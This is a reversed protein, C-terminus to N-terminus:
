DEEYSPQHMTAFFADSAEQASMGPHIKTYEIIKRRQKSMYPEAMAFLERTSALKGSSGEATLRRILLEATRMTVYEGEIKVRRLRNLEKAAMESIDPVSKPRGKKNGSVGSKFRHEVPPKGYGVAYSKSRRAKPRSKAM